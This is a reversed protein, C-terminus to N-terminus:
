VGMTHSNVLNDIHWGFGLEPYVNNVVDAGM